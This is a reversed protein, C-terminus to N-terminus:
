SSLKIISVQRKDTLIEEALIEAEIMQQQLQEPTPVSKEKVVSM